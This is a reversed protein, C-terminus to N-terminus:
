SQAWRQSEGYFGSSELDLVGAGVVDGTDIPLIPLLDLGDELVSLDVGTAADEVTEEEPPPAGIETSPLVEEDINVLGGLEATVTDATAWLDGEPGPPPPGESCDIEAVMEGITLGATVDLLGLVNIGLEIGALTQEALMQDDDDDISRSFVDVEADVSVLGLNLTEEFSDGEPVDLDIENGLVNLSAGTVDFRDDPDASPNRCDSYSALSLAEAELVGDLGALSRVTVDALQVWAEAHGVERDTESVSSLGSATVLDVPLDPLGVGDSELLYEVDRDYVQTDVSAAETEPFMDIELDVAGSVGGGITTSSAHADSTYEPDQFPEPSDDAQAPQAAM